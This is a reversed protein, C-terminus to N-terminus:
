RSYNSETQEEELSFNNMPTATTQSVSLSTGCKLCKSKYRIVYSGCALCKVQQECSVYFNHAKDILVDRYPCNPVTTKRFERPSEDRTYRHKKSLVWRNPSM